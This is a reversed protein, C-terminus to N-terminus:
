NGAFEIKRYGSIFGTYTMAKYVVIVSGSFSNLTKDEVKVIAGNGQMYKMGTRTGANAILIHPICDACGPSSFRNGTDALGSLPFGSSSITLSYMNDAHHLILTGTGLLIPITTKAISNGNISIDFTDSVAQPLLTTAASIYGANGCSHRVAFSVLAVPLSVLFVLNLLLRWTALNLM